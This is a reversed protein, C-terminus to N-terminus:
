VIKITISDMFIYNLSPAAILCILEYPEGEFTAHTNNLILPKSKQTLNGTFRDSASSLTNHLISKKNLEKGLYM